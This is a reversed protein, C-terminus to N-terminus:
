KYNNHKGILSIFGTGAIDDSSTSIKFMQLQLSQSLYGM